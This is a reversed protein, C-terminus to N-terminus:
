PSPRRRVRARLASTIESTNSVKSDEVKMIVDGAKIGAKEAASNKSVSKVLVGDKVGFFEALQEQQGLSEGYIGLMPNQYLMQFRPIEINPM